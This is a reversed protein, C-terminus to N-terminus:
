KIKFQKKKVVVPEGSVSSLVVEEDPAIELYVNEITQNNAKAIEQETLYRYEIDFTKNTKAKQNQSLDLGLAITFNDYPPMSIRTITPKGKITIERVNQPINLVQNFSRKGIYNEANQSTKIYFNVDLGSTSSKELRNVRFLPAISAYRRNTSPETYCFAEFGSLNVQFKDSVTDSIFLRSDDKNINIDPCDYQSSSSSFCGSLFLLVSLAFIRKMSIVKKIQVM